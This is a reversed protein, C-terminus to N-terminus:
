WAAPKHFTGKNDSLTNPFQSSNIVGERIPKYFDSNMKIQHSQNKHPNLIGVKKKMDTRIIKIPAILDSDNSIIVATDFLDQYADNLLHTALNVDSGKEETKVVDAFKIKKGYCDTIPNALCMNITHTLFHGLIVEVIPITELARIYIQQRVQQQPDQPRAVVLATFYKISIINSKPLLSQCLKQLDLWKKNKSPDKKLAGYYLNFADVYISTRPYSTNLTITM